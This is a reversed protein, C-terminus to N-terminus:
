YNRRREYDTHIDPTCLGTFEGELAVARNRLDACAESFMSVYFTIGMSAFRYSRTKLVTIKNAYMKGPTPVVDARAADDWFVAGARRSALFLM